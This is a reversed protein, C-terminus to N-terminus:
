NKLRKVWKRKGYESSAEFEPMSEFDFRVPQSLNPAKLRAIPFAAPIPVSQAYFGPCHRHVTGFM